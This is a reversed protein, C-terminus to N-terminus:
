KPKTVMLFLIAVIPVMVAIGAITARIAVTRYAASQQGGRELADNQRSGDHSM